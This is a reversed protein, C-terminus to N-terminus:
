EEEPWWLPLSDYVKGGNYDLLWQGDSSKWALAGDREDVSRHCDSPHQPALKGDARRWLPEGVIFKYLVNRILEAPYEADSEARRFVWCDVLCEPKSLESPKEARFQLFLYANM